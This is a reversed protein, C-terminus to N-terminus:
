ASPRAQTTVPRSPRSTTHWHGTRLTVRYVYATSGTLGSDTCSLARVPRAASSGCAPQWDDTGAVAREVVWGPDAATSPSWHVAARTSTTLGGTPAPPQELTGATLTVTGAGEGDLLVTSTITAGQCRQESSGDMYATWDVTTTSGAPVELPSEPTPPLTPALSVGTTTCADSTAAAFTVDDIQVPRAQRNVLVVSGAVSRGPLLAESGPPSEVELPPPATPAAQRSADDGQWLLATASAGCLVLVALAATLATRRGPRRAHQGGRRHSTLRLGEMGYAALAGSVGEPDASSERGADVTAGDRTKRM